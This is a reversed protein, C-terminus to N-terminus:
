PEIEMWLADDAALKVLGDSDLIRWALTNPSLALAENCCDIAAQHNNAYVAVMAGAKGPSSWRGNVRRMRASGQRLMLNFDRTPGAILECETHVAGDFEFPPAQQGLEHTSGDTRLRVGEGALVAFWRRVGPLQSFPGDRTVEAVSMRVTWEARRPWALLERTVGGGNHWPTPPVDDLRVLQWSM